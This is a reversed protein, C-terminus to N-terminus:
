TRNTSSRFPIIPAGSNVAAQFLAPHFPQVGRSSRKSEPFLWFSRGDRLESELSRVCRAAARANSRDIFLVNLQRAMWGVVPWSKLESKAVIPAAHWANLVFVDLLSIHNSVMLSGNPPRVLSGVMVLDITTIKLIKSCWNRFLRRKFDTTALPYVFLLIIGALGFHAMLRGAVWVCGCLSRCSRPRNM